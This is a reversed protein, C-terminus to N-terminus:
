QLRHLAQRLRESLRGHTPVAIVNRVRFPKAGCEPLPTWDNADHRSEFVM